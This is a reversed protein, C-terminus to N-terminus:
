GDTQSKLVFVEYLVQQRIATDWDLVVGLPVQLYLPPGKASTPSTLLSTTETHVLTHTQIMHSHPLGFLFILMFDLTQTWLDNIAQM